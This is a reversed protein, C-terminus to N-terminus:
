GNPMDPLKPMNLMAAAQAVPTAHTYRMTMTIDQHRALSRVVDPTAGSSWARTIFTHRLSHFDAYKGASDCYSIGAAKLDAKIFKFSKRHGLGPFLFETSKMGVFSEKLQPILGPHLPLQDRRRHKSYAAEIALTPPNSTLDFSSRRLSAIEGRRLGTAFAIMYVRSREIGTLGEIVTDSKAAAKVLKAFEDDTFARRDHRRDLAVNESKMGFLPNDPIRRDVQLWRVFQKIAQLYFNRTQASMRVWTVRPVGPKQPIRLMASITTKVKTPSLDRIYKMGSEELVRRIKSRVHKARLESVGSARMYEYHDQEHELLPRERHEAYPDTEGRRLKEQHKRRLIEAQVPDETRCSKYRVQKGIKWCLNLRGKRETVYVNIEEM